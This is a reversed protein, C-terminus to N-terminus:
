KAGQDSALCSAGKRAEEQAGPKGPAQRALYRRGIRNAPKGALARGAVDFTHRLLAPWATGGRQAVLRRVDGLRVLKGAGLLAGVDDREARVAARVLGNGLLAVGVVATPTPVVPATVAVM